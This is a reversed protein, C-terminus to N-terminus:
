RSFSTIADELEVLCYSPHFPAAMSEPKVAPFVLAVVAVDILHMIPYHKEPSM